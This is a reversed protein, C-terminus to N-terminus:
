PKGEKAADIAARLTTDLPTPYYKKSPTPTHTIEWSYWGWGSDGGDIFSPQKDLWDLRETDAKAAALEARLERIDEMAEKAAGLTDHARPGLVAAIAALEARLEVLEGRCKDAFVKNEDKLRERDALVAETDSRWCAYVNMPSAMTDRLRTAAEDPNTPTTNM